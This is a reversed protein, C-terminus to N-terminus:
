FFLTIVYYIIPILLAFLFNAVKLKTIKLFNLGLCLVLIYGLVCLQSLLDGQLVESLYSSLLTLSGQYILVPIASFIVGIGMTAALIISTVGDLIAKVYLISPDNLLGDNISGVIAMAGVCYILSGTIFSKAFGTLKFRKEIKYSLNNLKDDFNLKEGILVGLILSIVILLEYHSKLTNNEITIGSTIIGYMGIVCVALGVANNIAMRYKEQIGKKLLSGILSGMIIFAVNVITGV